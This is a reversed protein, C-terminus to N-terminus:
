RYGDVLDAVVDAVSRVARIAGVGHGASHVQARALRRHEFAVPQADTVAHHRLVSTPLGTVASTLEVDDISAGVVAQKYAESAHSEVTAIFGTGVYCLDAGLVEAARVSMGDAIGGALVIPGDWWQRVARVFAFPNAWGTQGGGGAALLVLGDAGADVARRAHRMSAVDAYVACGITHLSSVVMDPAGVSTIVLESGHDLVVALDDALRPNSAHTVLNVAVPAAVARARDRGGLRSEIDVLWEHLRDSSSANHAPFAGIVGATCAAVVLDPSSVGTMPAAIVPV